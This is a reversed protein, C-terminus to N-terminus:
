AAMASVRRALHADGGAAISGLLAPLAAGRESLRADLYPRLAKWRKSWGAESLTGVEPREGVLRAARLALEPDDLADSLAALARVAPAAPAADPVSRWSSLARAFAEPHLSYLMALAVRLPLRRSGRPATVTAMLADFTPALAAHDRPSAGEVRGLARLAHRVKIAVKWSRNGLESELAALADAAETIAAASAKRPRLRPPLTLKPAPRPAGAPGAIEVYGERLKEAVKKDYERVALDPTAFAKEKRQGAAGIRGYVVVFSSGEVDAEWFKSSTGEVFEFRRM